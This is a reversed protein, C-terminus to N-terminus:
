KVIEINTVPHLEWCSARWNKPNGPNTNEAQREHEADFLMWGQVKIWHHMIKNRLGETSWDIGKDKMVERIRPTVEVIVRQTAGSSDPGIVLEIHTDRYEKDEEHCNCTEVGGVKVDYVYGSIQAAKYASFRGVDYGPQLIAALTISYDFDGAKPFNYRNKLDNLERVKESKADGEMGCGRFVDQANASLFASFLLFTFLINKM